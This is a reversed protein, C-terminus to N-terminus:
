TIDKFAPTANKLILSLLTVPLVYLTLVNISQLWRTAFKNHLKSHSDKDVPWADLHTLLGAHPVIQIQVFLNTNSVM